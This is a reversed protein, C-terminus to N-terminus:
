RAPSRSRCSRPPRCSSPRSDGAEPRKIFLELPRGDWSARYVVTQGDPAFRASGSRAAAFRSRSFPRRRPAIGAKMARGAVLGRRGRCRPSPWRRRSPRKRARTGCLGRPATASPRASLGSLAELDFAVDRASQFREEPSKELCHACSGISRRRSTRAPRSRAPPDEKLIANMTDAATDGHFARQGSLMEYLIAGFAFIDTRRDAPRGRVQEPSMYGVRAWCPGPSRAARRRRRRRDRRRRRAATSDAQGPRLRPDQRPRRAHPLRERAEPRPPRHGERAGRALGQAIQVAYDIPRARRSRAAPSSRACRRARSCSRSSTRRATTRASTTSRWSTPITSRARGRAGGARLAAPPRRGRSCAAPLVKIAVDRDLRTDRARYVEGM